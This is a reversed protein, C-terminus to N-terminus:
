SLTLSADKANGTIEGLAKSAAITEAVQQASYKKENGEADTFAFSRNYDDGRVANSDM